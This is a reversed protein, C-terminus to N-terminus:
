THLIDVALLLAFTVEEPLAGCRLAFRDQSLIERWEAAFTLQQQADAQRTLPGGIFVGVISAFLVALVTLRM